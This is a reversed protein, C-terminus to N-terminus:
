VQVFLASISSLGLKHNKNLLVPLVMDIDKQHRHCQFCMGRRMARWAKDDRVACCDGAQVFHTFHIYAEKFAEKFTAGSQINDPRSQLITELHVEGVLERLFLFLHIPASYRIDVASDDMQSPPISSKALALAARDHALTLLLRAVFEGPEGKRVLGEDIFRSLIKLCDVHKMIQAAAEALIPESPAGAYMYERDAPIFFTVRMHDAVLKEEMEVAKYRRRDIELLLRMSLAALLAEDRFSVTGVPRCTLKEIAFNIINRKAAESGARYRSSFRVPCIECELCCYCLTESLLAYLPRGFRVMFENTCAFDLTCENERIIDGDWVDFPLAVYPAQVTYTANRIRMSPSIHRAPSFPSLSPQTSLYLVFVPYDLLENLASCLNEYASRPVECM